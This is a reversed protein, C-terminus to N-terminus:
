EGDNTKRVDMRSLIVIFCPTSGYSYHLHLIVMCQVQSNRLTYYNNDVTKCVYYLIDKAIFTKLEFELLIM